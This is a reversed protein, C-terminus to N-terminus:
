LLKLGTEQHERSVPASKEDARLIAAAGNSAGLRNPPWDVPAKVSVHHHFLDFDPTLGMVQRRRM